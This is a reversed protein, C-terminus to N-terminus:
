MVSCADGDIGGERGAERRDVYEGFGELGRWYVHALFGVRGKEFAEAMVTLCEEDEEVMALFGLGVRKARSWERDTEYARVYLRNRRAALDDEIMSFLMMMTCAAWIYNFSSLPRLEGTIDILLDAKAHELHDRATLSSPLHPATSNNNTRLSNRDTPTPIQPLHTFPGATTTNNDGPLSALLSPPLDPPVPAPHGLRKALSVMGLITDDTMGEARARKILDTDELRREKTIPDITQKTQAVRLMFLPSHLPIDADPIVGLNWNYQRYLVLASKINFFRNADVAMIRHLDHEQAASKRATDWEKRKSTAARIRAMFADSFKSSPLKGGVFFAPAFLQELSAFFGVPKKLYGKKLLMNHLHILVIPESLREWVAMGALYALELGEMLGAGCLFPSYEWLGNANTDSFRSPPISNLGYMYKSEGLWNCFDYQLGELVGEIDEHRKPDGHLKADGDCLQKLVTVAQLFGHGTREHTRDLFLDVDRRPRFKRPPPNLMHGRLPSISWGRSVMLSDVICQLQFVHHPLIRERVDTGEKQMALSTIVGAFENLGFLRRHDDWPGAPSWDVNELVHGEGKGTNRQVVISSFVNVLDYLWNITYCRRWRIRDQNSARQLDFKPDWSRIEALMRKTPKGSRTKRFDDVFDMLDRYTHIMFQERVDIATVQVTEAGGDPGMRHLAMTFVGQAKSPDGRTITNMVTEYAEHGPFDVFMEAASRQIMAVALSSVAGAIATNLGDCACERWAGQLYTRLDIWEHVLAYVAMLYDTILGETDQIIRYSELPVDDLHSKKTPMPQQKKPKKGRKGKKGKGPKVQQRQKPATGPGKGPPGNEAIEDDSQEAEQDADDDATRGLDLAGFPNSLVLRDLDDKLQFAEADVQASDTAKDPRWDKGGLVHFAETLADIFHKHTLNSKEIAPDPNEAVIQQFAQHTATRANIVARFLRLIAPPVATIHKAILRSLAVLNAVTIEGTTNMQAGGDKPTTASKIIGNSTRIIWYLLQSTDRKYALYVNSAAM